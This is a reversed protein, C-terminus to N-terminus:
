VIRLGGTNFSLRTPISQRDVVEGNNNKIVVPMLVEATFNPESRKDNYSIPLGFSPPLINPQGSNGKPANNLRENFWERAQPPIVEDLFTDLIGKKIPDVFDKSSVNFLQGNKLLEYLIQLETVLTHVKMATIALENGLFTLWNDKGKLYDDYAKFMYWLATLMMILPIRKGLTSLVKGLTKFNNISRSTYDLVLAIVGILVSFAAVTKPNESTFSGLAKVFGWVMDSLYSIGKAAGLAGKIFTNLMPVIKSLLNFLNTLMEDLGAKMLQDSMQKLRERFRNEATISSNRMSEAAGTSEALGAFREFVLPLIKEPELGGEGQLKIAEKNTKLGYVEKVVDYITQRPVGRETLQNMEEAMIRGLSFMQNIAKFILKQDETGAGTTMIYTSMDEFMKKRGEYSMSNGASMNVQAFARGLSASDLGQQLSLDRIFKLTAQQQDRSESAFLLINEMRQQEQGAEKIQNTVVGATIAGGAVMGQPSFPRLFSGIAGFANNNFGQDRGYGGYGGQGGAGRNGGHGGGAGYGGVNGRPPMPPVNSRLMNLQINAQRVANTFNVWQSTLSIIRNEATVMRPQVYSLANGFRMLSPVSKMIQSSLNSYVTGLRSVNATSAAARSIGSMANKTAQLQPNLVRLNRALNTTNLRLDKLHKDLGSLSSTDIDFGMTAFLSAVKIKSM